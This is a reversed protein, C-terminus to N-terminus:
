DGNKIRGGCVYLHNGAAVVCSEVRCGDHSSFVTQWSCREVDYRKITSKEQSSSVEIAYMEGSVVAM